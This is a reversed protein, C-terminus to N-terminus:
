GAPFMTSSRTGPSKLPSRLTSTTNSSLARPAIVRSLVPATTKEGVVGSTKLFCFVPVVLAGCVTFSVLLPLVASFIEAIFAAPWNPIVEVQPDLTAAPAFQTMLTVNEGVDAPTFDPVTVIFSLADDFGCTISSDPVPVSYGLLEAATSFAEDTCM